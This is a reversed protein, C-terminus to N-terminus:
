DQLLMNCCYYMPYKINCNQLKFCFDLKMFQHQWRVFPLLSGGIAEVMSKVHLSAVSSTVNQHSCATLNTWQEVELNELFWSYVQLRLQVTNIM